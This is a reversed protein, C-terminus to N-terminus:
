RLVIITDVTSERLLRQLSPGGARISAGILMNEMLVFRAASLAGPLGSLGKGPACRENPGEGSRGRAPSMTEANSVQTRLLIQVHGHTEVRTDLGFIALM